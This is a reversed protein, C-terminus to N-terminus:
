IFERFVINALPLGKKTLRLCGGNIEVLGKKLLGEIERQYVDEARRGFRRHFVSLDVGATLRLGLFMTESMENEALLLTKCEVPYEERSLKDSYRELSAENSFRVGSMFSHAAPGLGLYPRNLWYVLNHACQRGPRAFNSIEYHSYGQATLYEVASRYMELEHEESCSCIEGRAAAQELPTGEELMLGYAAIHEPAMDVAKKLTEQWDHISQGPIGFIFDLNLNEFGAARALQVAEVAQEANHIRGLVGLLDDKFSQVGVSLRDVGAELLAALGAANVTGPNAEVTIECGAALSFSSRVEDLVTKLMAAPLITPTGGGFFLSSIIKDEDALASGYLNIERVLSELYNEVAPGGAPYSTFDCYLCKKICFPVHIYLGIPMVPCRRFNPRPVHTNDQIGKLDKVRLFKM